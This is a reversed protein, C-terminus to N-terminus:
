VVRQRITGDRILRGEAVQPQEDSGEPGMGDSIWLKAQISSVSQRIIRTLHVPVHGAINLGAHLPPPTSRTKSWTNAARLPPM